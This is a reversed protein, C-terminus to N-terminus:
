RIKDQVWDIWDDEVMSGAGFERCKEMERQTVIVAPITKKGSKMVGCLRHMGDLVECRDTRPCVAIVPERIDQPDIPSNCLDKADAKNLINSLRLNRRKM